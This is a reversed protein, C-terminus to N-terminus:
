NAFPLTFHFTSGSGLTSEAWIKGGHREVIRRTIALGLGTGRAGGQELRKFPGFVLELNEPAIGVGNDAVSLISEHDRLEASVCIRPRVDPRRYKMANGILNQFVQQILIEDAFVTPLPQV